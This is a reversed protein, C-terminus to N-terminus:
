MRYESIWVGIESVKTQNTPVFVSFNEKIGPVLYSLESFGFTLKEPISPDKIACQIKVNSKGLADLNAILGVVQFGNERFTTKVNSVYFRNNVILHYEKGLDFWTYDWAPEPTWPKKQEAIFSDLRAETAALKKEVEDIKRESVCGFIFCSFFFPKNFRIPGSL